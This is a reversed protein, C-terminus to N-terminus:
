PRLPVSVEGAAPFAGAADCSPHVGAAPLAPFVRSLPDPLADPLDRQLRVAATRGLQTWFFFVLILWMGASLLSAARIGFLLMGCAPLMCIWIASFGDPNGSVIFYVFMGVIELMFLVSSIALGQVRLYRAIMYNLFSLLAFAFTVWTLTGKDTFVNILTMVASVCGLLLFVGYFQVRRRREDDTVVDILQRYWKSDKNLIGM